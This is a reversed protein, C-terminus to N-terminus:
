SRRERQQLGFLPNHFSFSCCIDSLELYKDVNNDLSSSSYELNMYQFIMQCSFKGVDLSSIFIFYINGIKLESQNLLM